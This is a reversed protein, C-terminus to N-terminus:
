VFKLSFFFTKSPSPDTSPRSPPHVKYYETMSSSSNMSPQDSQFIKEYIYILDGTSMLHPCIKFDKAFLLM